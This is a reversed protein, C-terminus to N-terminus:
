NYVSEIAMVVAHMQHQTTDIRLPAENKANMCGGIAIKETTAHKVLFPNESALPGGVQWSTLQYLGRDITYELDNMAEQHDRNKAVMYASVIGEYAYGTNKPRGMVDHTHIMWHALMVVYDGFVQANKWGADYYEYYLMSSWQYFGKTSDSDHEETRWADLTYAKALVPATEEILPILYQYGDLYKAAKVMAL